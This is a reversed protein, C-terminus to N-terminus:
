LKYLIKKGKSEVIKIICNDLIAGGGISRKNHLLIPVKQTGCSRGLTGTIDYVDGWSRGTKVDGYDLIIRTKTARVYELVSIVSNSTEEHYSTGNVVKYKSQNEM